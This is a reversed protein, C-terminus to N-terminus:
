DVVDTAQRLEVVAETDCLAARAVRLSKSVGTDFEFVRGESDEGGHPPVKM